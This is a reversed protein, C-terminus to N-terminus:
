GAAAQEKQKYKRLMFYTEFVELVLVVIAILALHRMFASPHNSFDSLFSAVLAMILLVAGIAQITLYTKKKLSFFGYAKVKIDSM